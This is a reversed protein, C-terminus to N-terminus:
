KELGNFIKENSISFSPKKINNSSKEPKDLLQNFDIEENVFSDENKIGAEKELGSLMEEIEAASSDLVNNDIDAIDKKMSFGSKENTNNIYKADDLESILKELEDNKMNAARNLIDEFSKGPKEFDEKEATGTKIDEVSIELPKEKKDFSYKLDEVNMGKELLNEFEKSYADFFKSEGARYNIINNQNEKYADYVRKQNEYSEMEEKFGGFIAHIFRKFWSPKSPPNMKQESNDIESFDYRVAQGDKVSMLNPDGLCKEHNIFKLALKELNEKCNEEDLDHEIESESDLALATRFLEVTDEASAKSYDINRGTLANFVSNQSRIVEDPSVNNINKSDLSRIFRKEEETFNVKLNLM